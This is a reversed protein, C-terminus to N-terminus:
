IQNSYIQFYKILDLYDQQVIVFEYFDLHFKLLIFVYLIYHYFYYISYLVNFFNFIPCPNVDLGIIFLCNLNNNYQVIYNFSKLFRVSLFFMNNTANYLTLVIKIHTTM